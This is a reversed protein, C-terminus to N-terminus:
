IQASQSAPPASWLKEINYFARTQPLMLHVVVDVLDVLVWEAEREGEVGLPQVGAAKARQVLRDAMAKVQRTSNGSAVIMFDAFSSRDRLDIVQIDEGKADDLVSVALDRLAEADLVPQANM